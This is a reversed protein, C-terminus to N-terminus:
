VVERDLLLFWGFKFCLVFRREEGMDVVSWELCVFVRDIGKIEFRNVFWVCIGIDWKGFWRRGKM